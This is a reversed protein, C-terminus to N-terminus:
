IAEAFQLDQVSCRALVAATCAAETGVAIWAAALQTNCLPAPSLYQDADNLVLSAAALNVWLLPM